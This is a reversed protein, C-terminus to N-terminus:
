PTSGYTIVMRDLGDLFRAEHNEVGYSQLLPVQTWYISTLIPVYRYLHALREDGLCLRLFFERFNILVSPAVLVVKMLGVSRHTLLFCGSGRVNDIDCGMLRDM